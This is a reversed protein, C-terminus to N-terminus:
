VTFKKEVKEDQECLFIHSMTSTHYDSALPLSLSLTSSLLFYLSLSFLSALRTM